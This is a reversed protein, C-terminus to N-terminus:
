FNAQFKIRWGDDHPQFSTSDKRDVLFGKGLYIESFPSFKYGLSVETKNQKAVEKQIPGSKESDEIKKVAILPKNDPDNDTKREQPEGDMFEVHYIKQDVTCGNSVSKPKLRIFSPGQAKTGKNVIKYESDACGTLGCKKADNDQAERLSSEQGAKKVDDPIISVDAYVFRTIPFLLMLGFLLILCFAARYVNKRM